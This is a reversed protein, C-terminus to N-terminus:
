LLHEMGGRLLLFALGGAKRATTQGDTARRPIGFHSKKELTGEERGQWVGQEAHKGVAMVEIGCVELNNWM